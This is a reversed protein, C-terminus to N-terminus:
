NISCTVIGTFTLKTLSLCILHPSLSTPQRSKMSREMSSIFSMCSIIEFLWASSTELHRHSCETFVIILNVILLSLIVWGSTAQIRVCNIGCSIVSVDKKGLYLVFLNDENNQTQRRRRTGDGRIPPKEPRQLSLTLSTYARLDDLDRPPRMEVYGTGTFKMPVVIQLLNSVHLPGHFM